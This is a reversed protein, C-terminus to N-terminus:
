IISLHLDTSEVPTNIQKYRYFSILPFYELSINM